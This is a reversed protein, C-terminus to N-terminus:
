KTSYVSVQFEISGDVRDASLVNPDLYMSM